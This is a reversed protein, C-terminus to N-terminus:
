SKGSKNARVEVENVFSGVTLDRGSPGNPM